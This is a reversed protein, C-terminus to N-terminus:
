LEIGYCPIECQLMRYKGWAAIRADEPLSFTEISRWDCYAGDARVAILNTEATYCFVRPSQSFKHITVLWRLGGQFSRISVFKEGLAEHWNWPLVHVDLEYGFTSLWESLEHESLGDFFRSYNSDQDCSSAAFTIHLTQGTFEVLFGCPVDVNLEPAGPLVAKRLVNLLRFASAGWLKYYSGCDHLAEGLTEATQADLITTVTTPTM